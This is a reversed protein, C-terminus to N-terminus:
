MRKQYHRSDFGPRRIQLWSSQGSSWLPPSHIICILFWYHTLQWGEGGGFETRKLRWKNNQFFFHFNIQVQGSFLSSLVNACFLSSTVPPQLSSCLSNWFEFEESLAILIIFGLFILHASGTACTPVVSIYMPDSHSLWLSLSWSYSSSILPLIINFHIKPLCSSITNVSTAWSLSLQAATTFV